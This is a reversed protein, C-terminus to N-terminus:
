AFGSSDQQRSFDYRYQEVLIVHTTVLPATYHPQSARAEDVTRTWRDLFSSSTSPEDQAMLAPPWACMALVSLLLIRSSARKKSRTGRGATDSCFRKEM